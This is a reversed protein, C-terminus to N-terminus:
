DTKLQLYLRKDPIEFNKERKRYPNECNPATEVM